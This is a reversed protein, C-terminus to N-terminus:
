DDWGYTSGDHPYCEEDGFDGYGYGYDIGSSEDEEGEDYPNMADAYEDESMQDNAMADTEDYGYGSDDSAGGYGDAAPAPPAGPVKVRLPRSLKQLQSITPRSQALPIRQMKAISQVPHPVPPAPPPPARLVGSPATLPRLPVQPPAQPLIRVAAPAIPQLVPRPVAVPRVMPLVNRLPQVIPKPALSKAIPQLHKVQAHRTAGVGIFSDGWPDLDDDEEDELADYEAFCDPGYYAYSDGGIDGQLGAFYKDTVAYDDEDFEVDQYAPYEPMATMPDNPDLDDDVSLERGLPPHGDGNAAAVIADIIRQHDRPSMSAGATPAAANRITIPTRLATIASSSSTPLISRAASLSALGQNKLQMARINIGESRKRQHWSATAKEVLKRLELKDKTYLPHATLEWSRLLGDFQDIARREYKTCSGINGYSWALRSWNFHCWAKTIRGLRLQASFLDLYIPLLSIGGDYSEGRSFAMALRLRKLESMTDEPIGTPNGWSKGMVQKTLNINAASSAAYNASFGEANFHLVNSREGVVEFIEAVSNVSYYDDFNKFKEVQFIDAPVVAGGMGTGYPPLPPAVYQEHCKAINQNKEAQAQAQASEEIALVFGVVQQVIPVINAMEAIGAAVGIESVIEQMTSMAESALEPAVATWDLEGHVLLAQKSAYLLASGLPSLEGSVADDDISAIAQVALQDGTSM